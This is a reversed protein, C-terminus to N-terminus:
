RDPRILFSGKDHERGAGILLKVDSSVGTVSNTDVAVPIIIDISSDISM